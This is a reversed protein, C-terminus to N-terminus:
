RRTPAPMPHPFTSTRVSSPCSRAPTAARSGNRRGRRSSARTASSAGRPGATPCASSPTRGRRLMALAMVEDRDVNVDFRARGQLPGLTNNHQVRYGTFTQYHGDDMKISCSVTLVRKPNALMSRVNPDLQLDAYVRNFYTNANEWFQPTHALRDPAAALRNTTAEM